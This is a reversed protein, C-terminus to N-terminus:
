PQASDRSAAICANALLQCRSHLPSSRFAHALHSSSPTFLPRAVLGVILPSRRLASYVELANFQRPRFRAVFQVWLSSPSVLSPRPATLGVVMSFHRSYRSCTSSHRSSAIRPLIGSSRSKNSCIATMQSDKAWSQSLFKLFFLATETTFYRGRDPRNSLIAGM